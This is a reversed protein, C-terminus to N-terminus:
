DRAPRPGLIARGVRVLTAGEQVAVEYDASTGMSLEDWQIEPLSLALFERLKRLKVFYERSGGPELALPPMAMLGAIRIAGLSSIQAIEPILAPWDEENEVAWGSKTEEGGLNFELLVPIKRHLEGAAQDIRRALPLSDLSHVMDFYQSVLRAKRSQIHGIMHWELGGEKGLADIKRAGEEAYNEGLLKAGAEVAAAVVEVPQAKTVVVLRVGDPDRGAGQAALLIRERVTELNQRIASTFDIM